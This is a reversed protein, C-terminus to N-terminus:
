RKVATKNFKEQCRLCIASAVALPAREAFFSPKALELSSVFQVCNFLAVLVPVM